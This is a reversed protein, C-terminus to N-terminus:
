FLIEINAPERWRRGMVVLRAVSNKQVKMVFEILVTTQFHKLFLYSRLVKWKM